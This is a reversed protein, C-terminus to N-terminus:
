RQLPLEERTTAIPLGDDLRMRRETITGTKDLVITTVRRTQELM